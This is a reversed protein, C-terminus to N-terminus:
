GDPSLSPQRGLKVNVDIKKGNRYLTLKLEGGPRKSGLVDRLAGPSTVARGDAAVIVDGGLVYTEGNVTVQTKGAKLQAKAAPSGAQVRTVLLGHAVPLKAVSSLDPTIQAIGVGIYAHQVSGHALIQAVVSKVTNSPVAFGIGVNGQEGTNGTSIQSNVGIVHSRLNLLPGGSNGHNLAADTQIAHDITFQNPAEIPRGVASVIGYTATRTLGFPNGIAVVPDGVRADNSDGLPLPDLAKRDIKVQLVALDTSPDTGVVKATVQENNSFSVKVTKAGQVVHYNTVIHGDEDIVFGSGLATQEQRQPPLVDGFFSDSPVQVVSTATIQVVGPAAQRYIEAISRQGAASGTSQSIPGSPAAVREVEVTKTDLKGLVAAGGLAITGGIVAVLVLGAARLLIRRRGVAM